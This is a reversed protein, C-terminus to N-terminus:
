NINDEGIRLKAEPWIAHLIHSWEEMFFDRDASMNLAEYPTKGIFDWNWDEDQLKNKFYEGINKNDQATIIYNKVFPDKILSYVGRRDNYPWSGAKIPQIEQLLTALKIM